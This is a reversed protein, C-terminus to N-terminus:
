PSGEGYHRQWAAAGRAKAVRLFFPRVFFCLMAFAVAVVVGLAEADGEARGRQTLAVLVATTLGALTSGITLLALFAMSLQGSFTREFLECSPNLCLTGQDSCVTHYRTGCRCSTSMSRAAQYGCHVCIPPAPERMGFTQACGLTACRPLEQLCAAHYTTACAPCASTEGTALGDLCFPCTEEGTRQTVEIESM